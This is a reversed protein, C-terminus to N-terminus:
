KQLLVIKLCLGMVSIKTLCMSKPVTASPANRRIELARSGSGLRKQIWGYNMSVRTFLKDSPNSTPGPSVVGVITKVFIALSGSDNVTINGICFFSAQTPDARVGCKQLNDVEASRSQLADTGTDWSVVVVRSGNHADAGVLPLVKTWQDTVFRHETLALGIDNPGALKRYPEFTKHIVASRIKSTQYGEEWKAANIIGAVAIMNALLSEQLCRAASLIHRPAILAGSCHNKYKERQLSVVFPFQGRRAKEAALVVEGQLSVLISFYCFWFKKM